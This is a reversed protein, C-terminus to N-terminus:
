KLIPLLQKFNFIIVIKGNSPLIILKLYGYSKYCLIWLLVMNKKRLFLLCFVKYKVLIELLYALSESIANTESTGNSM